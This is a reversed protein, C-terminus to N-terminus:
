TPRPDRHDEIELKIGFEKFYGKEIAMLEAANSTSRAMGLTVTTEQALAAGARGCRHRASDLLLHKMTTAKM